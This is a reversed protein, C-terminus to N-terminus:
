DVGVISSRREYLLVDRWRGDPMQGIRRSTGVLEFGTHEHLAISATNEPFIGARLTWFGKGESTEILAELLMRGLGRRSFAPDVYISVEGVGRYVARSSIPGLAAWGLLEGAQGHAGLAPYGGRTRSWEEWSPAQSEFTANGGVIGAEYVRAALPWEEGTLPTLLIQDPGV